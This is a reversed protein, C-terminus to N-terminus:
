LRDENTIRNADLENDSNHYTTLVGCVIKWFLGIHATSVGNLTRMHRTAQSWLNETGNIYTQDDAFLELHNNGFYHFDSVDLVNSGKWRDLYVISDPVVKRKIIPLSTASYTDTTIKAYVRSRCKLCVSNRSKEAVGWGRKGKRKGGFYSEDVEIESIFMAENEAELEAAIIKHLRHLFIAMTKRNGGCLSTATQAPM